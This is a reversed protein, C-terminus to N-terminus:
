GLITTVIIALSYFGGIKGGAPLCRESLDGCYTSLNMSRVGGPSGKLPLNRYQFFLGSIPRKLSFVDM